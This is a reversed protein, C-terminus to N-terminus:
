EEISETVTASDDVNESENSDDNDLSMVESYPKVDIKWGTLKAALRVNQGGKGIALSLKDDAVIARASKSNDDVQVMLVKAPSLSRAIFELSDECWEIIDVKEGNLENVIANIRMGKHGICAGVADINASEATVAMKTRNGADRVIGKVVVDGSKLEPVEFEFLKKVFGAVSRSCIIQTGRPTQRTSKVYVKINEGVEYRDTAVRDNGTIVGETQSPFELYVTDTEVRRVRATQIEGEHDSMQSMISEKKIDNLKQMIVQKATQIAIRSFNKPTVDELIVWDGVKYSKKITKAEELAIEKDFDEVEEVAIKYAYMKIENKLPNLRVTIPRAEGQERKYAAALGQTLSEIFDDKKIRGQQDLEDLAAFFDKNVM